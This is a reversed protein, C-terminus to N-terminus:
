FINYFHVQPLLFVFRTIIRLNKKTIKYLSLVDTVTIAGWIGLRAILCSAGNTDMCVGTDCNRGCDPFHRRDAPAEELDSGEEHEVADSLRDPFKLGFPKGKASM